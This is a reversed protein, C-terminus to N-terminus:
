PVQAPEARRVILVSCPAKHAVRESVSGLARVGTLGRSGLVVLSARAETAVEVIRRHAKGDRVEIVPEVGAAEILTVAEEAVADRQSPDAEVHLAILTSGYRAAIRGAITAALQSDPSGDGAHIIRDPFRGDDTRRAILVSCSSHHAAATAVSGLAIGAPRSRGRSGVALLDAQEKTATDLVGPVDLGQVLRTQLRPLEEHAAALAAAAQNRLFDILQPSQHSGHAAAAPDWVSVGIIRAEDDALMSAQRLAETAQPSPDIGCVVRTFGTAGEAAAEATPQTSDPSPDGAFMPRLAVPLVAIVDELEGASVHRRLVRSAALCAVSAETEGGLGAEKEIRALLEDVTRYSAPTQAPAWGDYYIGRILQPLQAGLQAVEEVTIRDRIAHLHARLVRHARARDESGLEAALEDLWERTQQVSRELVKPESM